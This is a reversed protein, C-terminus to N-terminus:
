SHHAPPPHAAPRLPHVNLRSASSSAPAIAPLPTKIACCTPSRLAGLGAPYTTYAASGCTTFAPSASRATTICESPAPRTERSKAHPGFNPIQQNRRHDLQIAPPHPLSVESTTYGAPVAYLECSRDPLHLQINIGPRKRHLHRHHRRRALM